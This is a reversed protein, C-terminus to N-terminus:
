RFNFSRGFILDLAKLRERRGEDSGMANQQLGSFVLILHTLPGIVKRRCIALVNVAFREGKGSRLSALVYRALVVV